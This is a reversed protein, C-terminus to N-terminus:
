PIDSFLSKPINRSGRCIELYTLWCVQIVRHYVLSKVDNCTSECESNPWWSCTSNEILLYKIINDIHSTSFIYMIHSFVKDYFNINSLQLLSLDFVNKYALEKM